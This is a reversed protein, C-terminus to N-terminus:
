YTYVLPLIQAADERLLTSYGPESKRDISKSPILKHLITQVLMAKTCYIHLKIEGVSAITRLSNRGKEVGVM